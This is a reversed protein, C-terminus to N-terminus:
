FSRTPNGTDPLKIRIFIPLLRALNKILHSPFGLMIYISFNLVDQYIWNERSIPIIGNKQMNLKILNPLPIIGFDLGFEKEYIYIGCEPEYTFPHPYICPAELQFFDAFGCSHITLHGNTIEEDLDRLCHGATTWWWNDDFSLIFGSFVETGSRKTACDEYSCSISLAVLHRSMFSVFKKSKIEDNISINKM